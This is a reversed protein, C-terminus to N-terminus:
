ELMSTFINCKWRNGFIRINSREYFITDSENDDTYICVKGSKQDPAVFSLITKLGPALEDITITSCLQIDLCFM